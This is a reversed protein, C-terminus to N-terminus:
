SLGVIRINVQDHPVDFHCEVAEDINRLLEERDKGDTFIGQDMDAACFYGDKDVDIKFTASFKKAMSDIINSNSKKFINQERLPLHTSEQRKNVSM